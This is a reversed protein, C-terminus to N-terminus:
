CASLGLSPLQRSPELRYQGLDVGSHNVSYKDLIRAHKKSLKLLEDHDVMEGKAALEGRLQNIELGCRHHQEANVADNNSYQILSTVLILVSALMTVGSLDAIVAKSLQYVFLVFTLAIVLTSALAISGDQTGAMSDALLM